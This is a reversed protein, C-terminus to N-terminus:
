DRTPDWFAALSRVAPDDSNHAAEWSPEGESGDASHLSGLLEDPSAMSPGSGHDLNEQLDLHGDGLLGPDVWEQGDTPSITVDLHPPYVDEAASEADLHGADPHDLLSEPLEDATHPDATHDAADDPHGSDHDALPDHSWHDAGHDALGHDDTLSHDDLSHDDLSAADYPDSHEFGGADHEDGGFEFPGHESM